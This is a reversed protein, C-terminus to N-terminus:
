QKGVSSDPRLNWISYAIMKRHGHANGPDEMSKYIRFDRIYYPTTSVFSRSMVGTYKSDDNYYRVRHLYWIFLQQMTNQFFFIKM